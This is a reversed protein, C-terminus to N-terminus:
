KRRWWAWLDVLVAVALGALTAEAMHEVLSLLSNMRYGEIKCLVGRIM